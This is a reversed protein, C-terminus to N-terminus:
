EINQGHLWNSVAKAVTEGLRFTLENISLFDGGGIGLGGKYSKRAIFKILSKGAADKIEFFGQVREEGLGMGVFYMAAANGKKVETITGSLILSRPIVNTSSSIVSEFINTKSFYAEVGEQFKLRCVEKDAALIRDDAILVQGLVLVTPREAPPQGSSFTRVEHFACGAALIPLLALALWCSSLRCWSALSLHNEKMTTKM